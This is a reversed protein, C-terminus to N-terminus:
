LNGNVEGYPTVTCNPLRLGEINEVEGYPIVTPNPLRLISYQM